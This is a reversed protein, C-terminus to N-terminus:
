KRQAAHAQGHRPGVAVSFVIQLSKNSAESDSNVRAYTNDLLKSLRPFLTANVLRQSKRFKTTFCAIDSL